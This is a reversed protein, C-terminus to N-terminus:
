NHQYPSIYLLTQVTKGDVMCIQIVNLLKCYHFTFDCFYQVGLFVSFLNLTRLKLRCIHYIVCVMMIEYTITLYM